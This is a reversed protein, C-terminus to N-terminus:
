RSRGALIGAFLWIWENGIVDGSLQANMLAFLFILLAMFTRLDARGRMGIVVAAGLFFLLALIGPLGNEVVVEAFVNHPYARIDGMRFLHSFGGTGLGELPVQAFADRAVGVIGLRAFDSMDGGFPRLFRDRITDPMLLLAIGAAAVSAFIIRFRYIFSRRVQLLGWLALVLIIGIMPGRSGALIFVAALMGVPIIATLPRIRGLKLLGLLAFLGLASIRAVWIPNLGLFSMRQTIRYFQFHLNLLGALAVLLAFVLLAALLRDFREDALARQEGAHARAIMFGGVLLFMNTTWYVILKMRAYIPSPTWISGLILVLGFIVSSILIPDRALRILLTGPSRVRALLFFCLSAIVTFRLSYFVLRDAGFIRIVPDLLPFGAALLAIAWPLRVTFFLAAALASLLFLLKSAQHLQVIVILDLLLLLFLGCLILGRSPRDVAPLIREHLTM